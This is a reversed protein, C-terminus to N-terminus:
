PLNKVKNWIATLVTTLDERLSVLYASVAEVEETTIPQDFYGNGGCLKCTTDAAPIYTEGNWTGAPVLDVGTGKCDTCPIRLKM